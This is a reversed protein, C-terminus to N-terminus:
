GTCDGTRESQMRITMKVSGVPLNQEIRMTMDQSEEGLTGQLTTIGETQGVKCAMEADLQNGNVQYRNFSCNGDAMKESYSKWGDAVDEEKLCFSQGQAFEASATEKARDAMGETLGPMSIELLEAKTEYQGARPTVTEAMEASIEEDSMPAIEEAEEAEGGCATLVLTSAIAVLSLNRM